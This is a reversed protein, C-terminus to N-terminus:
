SRTFMDRYSAYISAQSVPVLVLWGLGVRLEGGEDQAQCGMMIGGVFIPLLLNLLVGALPIMALVLVVALFIVSLAIWTGPVARFMEWGRGIWGIGRGAPM